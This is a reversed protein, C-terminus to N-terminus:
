VMMKGANSAARFIAISVEHVIPAMTEKILKEDVKLHHQNLVSEFDPPTAEHQKAALAIIKERLQKELVEIFEVPIMGFAVIAEQGQQCIIRYIGEGIADTNVKLGNINM